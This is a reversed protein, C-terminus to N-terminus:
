YDHIHELRASTEALGAIDAALEAVDTLLLHRYNEFGQRKDSYMAKPHTAAESIITFMIDDNGAIEVFSVGAETMDKILHTLARYRLTEIEIGSPTEGIVTVGSFQALTNGDAGDVIMRLTLADGGVEAVAAAIVRAYAAKVGYELGLALRREQDRMQGAGADRLAKADADFDWKYWPTQQLFAAYGKAQAASLDDLAARQPGRLTTFVRGLTEEYAAKALLEATFSFGIVYVMQKTAGDVPGLQGSTKSLACLSRWFGSIGKIFRYDHPDGTEIVRAYDQYAHVIYWEPYTLLTRSELRHHEAALLAQAAAPEGSPRCMVESYAVPTLLGLVVLLVGAILRKAWRWIFMM